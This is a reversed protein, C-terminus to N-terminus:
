LPAGIREDAETPTWGIFLQYRDYLEINQGIAEEGMPWRGKIVETAYKFAVFTDESIAKEGPPWPGCIVNRAYAFAWEADGSIVGEGEDFRGNVVDRAYWYSCHADEGIVGEGMPWRRGLVHRVYRYAYHPCEIIAAEGRPWPGKIACAAYQYANHSDKSIVEEGPIWPGRIVNRAYHESWDADTSISAEGPLWPGGVVDMAYHYSWEPDRSIAREGEPWPGGVVDMAYRYSWEPDGSIIREGEPWEGPMLAHETILDFVEEALIERVSKDVYGFVAYPKVGHIGNIYRNKYRNFPLVRCLLLRVKALDRISIRGNNRANRVAQDPDEDFHAPIVMCFPSRDSDRVVPYYPPGGYDGFSGGTVCWSMANKVLPVQCHERKSIRYMTYGDHRMVVPLGDDSLDKEPDLIESVERNWEQLTSYHRFDDPKYSLFSKVLCMREANTAPIRLDKLRRHLTKFRVVDEAHEEPTIYFEVVWKAIVPAFRKDTYPDVVRIREILPRLNGTAAMTWGERALLDDKAAHIIDSARQIAPLVSM